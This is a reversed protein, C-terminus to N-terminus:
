KAPLHAALVDGPAPAAARADAGMAACAFSCFVHQEVPQGYVEATVFLWGARDGPDLGKPLGPCSPNDCAIVLNTEQIVGM